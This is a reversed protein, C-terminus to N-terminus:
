TNRRFFDTGLLRHLPKTLKSRIIAGKSKWCKAYWHISITNKTKNVRGTADDYPNFWEVPYVTFGPLQQLQGNKQLGLRVLARTNLEPCGVTGHQGDLLYDYEALMAQVAPNHAVAGFGIGTNVYDDTEFSFYAEHERMAEVSKLLEVDIDFYFGGHEELIYLRAYDSLFAYQKEAICMQTYANQNIDFSDENWEIIEYDPCYKKWSAICKTALKPKEGGGFWCYHIKKPIM